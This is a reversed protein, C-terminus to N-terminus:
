MLVIEWNGTKSDMVMEYVITEFNLLEEMNINLKLNKEKYYGM